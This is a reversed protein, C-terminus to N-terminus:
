QVFLALQQHLSGNMTQLVRMHMHSCINDSHSNLQAPSVPMSAYIVTQPIPTFLIFLDKYVKHIVIPSSKTTMTRTSTSYAQSHM